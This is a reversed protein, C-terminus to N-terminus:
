AKFREGRRKFYFILGAFLCLVFVIVALMLLVGSNAGKVMASDPDKFCVTCAHLVKSAFLLVAAVMHFVFNKM